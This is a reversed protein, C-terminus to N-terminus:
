LRIKTANNTVVMHWERMVMTGEVEVEVEVEKKVVLGFWVM